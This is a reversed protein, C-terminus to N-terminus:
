AGRRLPSNVNSPIPRPEQLSNVNSPIPRPKPPSNVNSPIPTAKSFPPTLRFKFYISLSRPSGRLRFKFPCHGGRRESSNSFFCNKRCKRFNLCGSNAFEKKQFFITKKAIKERFKLRKLISYFIILLFLLNFDNNVAALRRINYAIVLLAFQLRVKDLGVMTFRNFKHQMRMRGFVTEVMASRKSYLDKNAELNEKATIQLDRNISVTLYRTNSKGKTCKKKFSCGLCAGIQTRYCKSYEKHKESKLHLEKGNPCTYVDNVEDYDFKEITFIDSAKDNGNKGTPSILETGTDRAHELM